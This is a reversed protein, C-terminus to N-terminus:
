ECIRMHHINIISHCRHRNIITIRSTSFRRIDIFLSYLENNSLKTSNRNNDSDMIITTKKKNKVDQSERSSPLAVFGRVLLKIYFLDISKFTLFYFYHIYIYLILLFLLTFLFFLLHFFYKNQRKKYSM